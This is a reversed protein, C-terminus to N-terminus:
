QKLVKKSVVGENTIIKVLYVGHEVNFPIEITAGNPVKKL